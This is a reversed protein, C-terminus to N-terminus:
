GCVRLLESLGPPPSVNAVFYKTGLLCDCWTLDPFTKIAPGLGSHLSCFSSDNLTWGDSTRPIWWGEDGGEGREGGGEGLM